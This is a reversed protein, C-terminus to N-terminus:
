SARWETALMAYSYSDYWRGDRHLSDERFHAERRMGIKEMVKWSATNDAFCHAVVRRVGLAEFCIALLETALETGIGQGQLSPDVTWGIEAEVAQAQDAIEAQSWADQIALKATSVIRGDAEGVLVDDIARLHGAIHAAEDAARRTLWESIQPSRYWQWFAPLDAETCPRISLRSTTRPWELEALTLM